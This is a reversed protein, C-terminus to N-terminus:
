RPRRAGNAHLGERRRISPAGGAVYDEVIQRLGRLESVLLALSERDLAVGGILRPALWVNMALSQDAARGSFALVAPLALLAEQLTGEVSGVSMRASAPREGLAARTAGIEAPTPDIGRVALASRLLDTVAADNAGSTEADRVVLEVVLEGIESLAALAADAQDRRLSQSGRRRGRRGRARPARTSAHYAVVGVVIAALVAAVGAILAGQLVEIVRM